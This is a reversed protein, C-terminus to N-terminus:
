PKPSYFSIVIPLVPFHLLHMIQIYSKACVNILEKRAEQLEENSMRETVILTQNLSEVAELNEEKERLDKLMTDVKEIVEKDGEDGVHKM